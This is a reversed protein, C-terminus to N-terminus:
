RPLVHPLPPGCSCGSPPKIRLLASLTPAIQGPAVPEFSTVPKVGPAFIAVPVYTDYSYPTGHTAAYYNPDDDLYYFQTPVVVVDGSRKPHFARQVSNLLPTGGIRGAMLDTRTFAYAIGPEARLEAALAIEVAQTDLKVLRVKAQNLWIGPPIVGAVLDETVNLRKRLAENLKAKLLEGGVRETEYGLAKREEPIDDVGHDASLAIVTNRLGITKDIFTFLQSLTADLRILNDESEVSNPGYSHGVYDTGSFSISLYDPVGNQGLKEKTILERAFGATLEDLFPTFRLGNVLGVEGGKDLVHPFTAGMNSKAHAHPNAAGKHNVYSELPRSLTWAKGQYRSIPKRDNWDKVWQPLEDYYYRSSAMGGTSSYWFAKGRHGGPMISSRDKGAIAFARSRGGSASVMEDGVTTSTLSVPSMGKGPVPPEGIAPYRADDVCYVSRGLDRDYWDNGVIGHESVDAGTALVAHGACTVTNATEYHANAFYVGRDMLLRFGGQGFRERFRPLLDGRLQDVTIQLVLRPPPPQAAAHAASGLVSALMLARLVVRVVSRM